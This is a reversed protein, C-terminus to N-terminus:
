TISGSAPCPPFDWSSQRRWGRKGLSSRIAKASLSLFSASATASSAAFIGAFLDLDLWDDILVKCGDLLEVCFDGLRAYGDGFLGLLDFRAGTAIEARRGPLWGRGGCAVLLAAWVRRAVIRSSFARPM